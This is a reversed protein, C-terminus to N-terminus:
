RFRQFVYCIINKLLISHMYADRKCRGFIYPIDSIFYSSLLVSVSVYNYWFRISNYLYVGFWITASVYHIVVCWSVTLPIHRILCIIVLSLESSQIKNIMVIIQWNEMSNSLWVELLVDIGHADHTYITYIPERCHEIDTRSVYKYIIMPITIGTLYILLNARERLM